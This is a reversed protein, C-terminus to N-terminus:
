EERVVVSFMCDAERHEAYHPHNYLVNLISDYLKSANPYKEKLRLLTPIHKQNYRFRLYDCHVKGGICNDCSEGDYCGYDDEDTEDKVTHCKCTKCYYYEDPQVGYEEDWWEWDSGELDGHYTNGAIPITNYTIPYSGSHLLEEPPNVIDYGYYSDISSSSM